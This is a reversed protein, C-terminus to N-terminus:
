AEGILVGLVGGLLGYFFGLATEPELDFSRRPAFLVASYRCFAAGFAAVAAISAVASTM